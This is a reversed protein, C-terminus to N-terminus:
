SSGFKDAALGIEQTDLGQGAVWLVLLAVPIGGSCLASLMSLGSNM